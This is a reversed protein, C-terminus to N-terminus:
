TPLHKWIHIESPSDKVSLRSLCLSHRLWSVDDKKDKYKNTKPQGTSKTPGYIQSNDPWNKNNPKKLFLLGVQLTRFWSSGSRERDDSLVIFIVFIGRVIVLLLLYRLVVCGSGSENEKRGGGGLSCSSCHILRDSLPSSNKFFNSCHILPILSVMTFRERDTKRASSQRGTFRAWGKGGFIKSFGSEDNTLEQLFQVLRAVVQHM